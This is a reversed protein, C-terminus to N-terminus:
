KSWRKDAPCVDNVPCEDCYGHHENTKICGWIKTEENDWFKVPMNNSVTVCLGLLIDRYRREIEKEKEKLAKYEAESLIYQMMGGTGTRKEQIACLRQVEDAVPFM